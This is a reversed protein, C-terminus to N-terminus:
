KTIVIYDAYFGYEPQYSKFDEIESNSNLGQSAFKLTTVKTGTLKELRVITADHFDTHFSGAILFNLKKASNKTIQDAMVSDTLCQALFYAGIQSNPIHGGMVETFRQLYRPGGVFHSAPVLESNIARIGGAIVQQKYKRPLNIGRLEGQLDKAVQALPTYELNKPGATMEIFDQATILNAIFEFFVSDTYAQETHNLFEWHITFDAFLGERQIKENIIQAQAKQIHPQNHFEGFAIHGSTPLEEIFEAFSLTRQTKPHYIELAHSQYSYFLLVLMITLNKM